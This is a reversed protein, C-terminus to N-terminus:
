LQIPVTYVSNPIQPTPYLDTVLSLFVVKAGRYIRGYRVIVIKGTCNVKTSMKLCKSTMKPAMISM